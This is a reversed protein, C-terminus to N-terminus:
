LAGGALGTSVRAKQVDMYAGIFEAAVQPVIANGAGRLIGVRGPSPGDVLPFFAPESPIRRAKGDGCEIVLGDAWTPWQNPALTGTGEWFRHLVERTSCWAKAASM